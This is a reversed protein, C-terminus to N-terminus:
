SHLARHFRFRVHQDFNSMAASNATVSVWHTDAIQKILEVRYQQLSCMNKVCGKKVKVSAGWNVKLTNLM